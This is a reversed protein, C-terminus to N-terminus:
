RLAAEYAAVTEDLVREWDCLRAIRERGARGLTRRLGPDALLRDIATRLAVPDRPPVLLGTEGDVVMDPLGGVASAVVPRAHAMAEACVVPFGDRRSPCVVVAARRMLAYLEERPVMGRAQPFLSRLPGDGAVVLELGESAAALEQVGKEEALRGAYLVEAPEAEAGTDEPLDLGTPVVRVDRAGLARAQAAIAESVALAVRTRRLTWAAPRPARRALEMDTGPLMVVVPRRAALAIAATPLWFAHV